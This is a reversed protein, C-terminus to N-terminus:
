QGKRHSAAHVENSGSEPPPAQPPPPPPLPESKKEEIVSELQVDRVMMVEKKVGGRQSLLFLGFASATVIVMCLMARILRRNYHKRLEYAGYEKNRGDFVIDLVNSQLIKDAEM